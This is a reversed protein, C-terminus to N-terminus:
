YSLLRSTLVYHFDEPSNGDNLLRSTWQQPHNDFINRYWLRECPSDVRHFDDIVERKHIVPSIDVFIADVPLQPTWVKQKENDLVEYYNLYWHVLLTFKNDIHFYSRSPHWRINASNLNTSKKIYYKTKLTTNHLLGIFM